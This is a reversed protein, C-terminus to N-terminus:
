HRRDFAIGKDVQEIARKVLDIAKARHGGKDADARDLEARAAQLHERAAHMHPQDANARGLLLGAAFVAGFASVVLLRRGHFSRPDNM